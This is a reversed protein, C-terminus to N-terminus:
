GCQLVVRDAFLAGVNAIEPTEERDLDFLTSQLVVLGTDPNFRKVEAMCHDSSGRIRPPNTVTFAYFYTAEYFGVEVRRAKIERPNALRRLFTLRLRGDILDVAFGTPRDLSIPQGDISLHASGAFDEPWDGLEQILDRQAADALAGVTTPAHGAAALMYLTEFADFIWTVELATLQSGDGIVFDVGGDVFIHPHAVARPPAAALCAALAAAALRIRHAAGTM